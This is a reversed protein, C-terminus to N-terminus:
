KKKRRILVKRDMGLDTFKKVTDYCVNKDTEYASVALAGAVKSVKEAMEDTLDIGSLTFNPVIGISRTYDMMKLFDPNGDIDCIGFAVQTLTKPIKDIISKFADFTMNVAEENISNGKYCFPCNGKCKGSAIELDLIEPGAPCYEPDDEYTKGWRAFNGNSKDFTYHYSGDSAECLKFEDGDYITYTIGDHNYNYIAPFLVSPHESKFKELFDSM